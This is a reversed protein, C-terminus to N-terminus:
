FLVLFNSLVFSDLLFRILPIFVQDTARTLYEPVKTIQLLSSSLCISWLFLFSIVMCLACCGQSSKSMDKHILFLTSALMSSLKSADICCCWSMFFCSPRIVVMLFLVSMVIVLLIVVLLFCFHSSFYRYPRLLRSIFLMYSSFILVHSLFLFKLLSVSHSWIAASFLAMLVLRILSLISLACCM